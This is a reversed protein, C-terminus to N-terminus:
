NYKLKLISRSKIRYFILNKEKKLRRENYFLNQYEMHLCHEEFLFRMIDEVTTANTDTVLYTIHESFDTEIYIPFSSKMEIVLKDGKVDEIDSM